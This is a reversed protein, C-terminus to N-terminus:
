EASFIRANRVFHALHISMGSLSVTLRALSSRRRPFDGDVAAPSNM